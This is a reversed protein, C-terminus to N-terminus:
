PSTDDNENYAHVDRDHRELATVRTELDKYLAGCHLSLRQVHEIMLKLEELRIM